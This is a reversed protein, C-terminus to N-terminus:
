VLRELARMSPRMFDGTAALLRGTHTQKKDVGVDRRHVRAAWVAATHDDIVPADLVNQVLAGMPERTGQLDDITV